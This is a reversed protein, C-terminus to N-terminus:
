FLTAEFPFGARVKLTTVAPNKSRKVSSHVPPGPQDPLNTGLSRL